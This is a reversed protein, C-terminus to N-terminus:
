CVNKTSGLYITMPVYRKYKSGGRVMRANATVKGVPVDVLLGIGVRKKGCAIGTLGTKRFLVCTFTPPLEGSTDRTVTNM